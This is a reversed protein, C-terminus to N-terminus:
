SWRYRASDGPVDDPFDPYVSDQDQDGSGDASSWNNTVDAIQLRCQARTLSDCNGPGDYVMVDEDTGLGNDAEIATDDVTLGTGALTNTAQTFDDNAIAARVLTPAM